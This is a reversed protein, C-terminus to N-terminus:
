QTNGSLLKCYFIEMKHSLINMDMNQKVKNYASQLDIIKEDVLILLIAKALAEEDNIPIIERSIIFKEPLVGCQSSFFGETIAKKSKWIKNAMLLFQDLINRYNETPYFSDIHLPRM